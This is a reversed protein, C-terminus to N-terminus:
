GHSCPVGSSWPIAAAGISEMVARVRKGYDPRPNYTRLKQDLSKNKYTASCGLETAVIEIGARVSPFRTRCSNWGFVNNNRAYKGGSSEIFSLSPLLRWDLSKSDAQHLFESAFPALPCNFKEFFQKLRPLRPDQRPVPHQLATGAPAALFGAIILFKRM